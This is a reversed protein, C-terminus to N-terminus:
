KCRVCDAHIMKSRKDRIVLIPTADVAIPRQKLSNDKRMMEATQLFGYDCSIVPVENYDETQRRHHDSRSAAMVCYRCWSRFPYHDIMHADVERTSPKIKQPRARMGGSKGLEDANEDDEMNEPDVPELNNEIDNTPIQPRVRQYGATRFPDCGMIRVLGDTYTVAGYDKAMAAARRKASIEQIAKNMIKNAREPPELKMTLDLGGPTPTFEIKKGQGRILVSVKDKHDLVFGDVM